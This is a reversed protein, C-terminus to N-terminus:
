KKLLDRILHVKYSSEHRQLKDINKRHEISREEKEVKSEEKEISKM